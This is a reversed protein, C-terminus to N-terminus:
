GMCERMVRANTEPRSIQRQKTDYLEGLKSDPIDKINLGDADAVREDIKVDFGEATLKKLRAIADDRLTAISEESFKEKRLTKLAGIAQDKNCFGVKIQMDYEISRLVLSDVQQKATASLGDYAQNDAM